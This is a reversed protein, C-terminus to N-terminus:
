RRQKLFEANVCNALKGDRLYYYATEIAKRRLDVFADPSFFGAHPNLLTRGRIWPENASWAAVLPDNLTAPENPLVDLGVAALKGSKLGELLASTDCIPGRATNILYAGPKLNNWTLATPTTGVPVETGFSQVRPGQRPPTGTAVTSSVIPWTATSQAFTHDPSTTCTAGSTCGSGVTGLGGGLQGVIVLSTPINNGNFTLSNTLSITLNTGTAVYPVTILVPSWGAPTSATAAPANPNLAACTAGVPAVTGCSYGWMPVASGDPLYVTAPGATLSVSQAHSVASALLLVSAALGSKVLASKFNNSRM